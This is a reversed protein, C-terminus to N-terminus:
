TTNISPNYISDDVLSELENINPLRWDSRGSLTLGECYSIAATWTAATAADGSCDTGSQGMSCKQWILGTINDTISGDNNDTYNGYSLVSTTFLLGTFAVWRKFAVWRHTAKM